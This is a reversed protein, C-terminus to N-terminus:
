QCINKFNYLESNTRAHKPPSTLVSCDPVRRLTSNQVNEYGLLCVNQRERSCRLCCSPDVALLACLVEDDRGEGILGIEILPALHRQAQLHCGPRADDRHVLGNPLGDGQGVHRLDTRDLVVPRRMVAELEIIRLVGARQGLEELAGFRDDFPNVLRGGLPWALVARFIADAGVSEIM